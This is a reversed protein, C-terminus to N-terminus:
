GGDPAHCREIAIECTLGPPCDEDRECAFVGDPISPTCAHLVAALALVALARTM